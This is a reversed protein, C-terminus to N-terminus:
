LLEGAADLLDQNKQTLLFVQCSPKGGYDFSTSGNWDPQLEKILKHELAGPHNTLHYLLQVNPYIELAIQLPIHKKNLRKSLNKSKGIYLWNEGLKLGYIGSETPINNLNLPLWNMAYLM